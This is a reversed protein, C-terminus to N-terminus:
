KEHRRKGEMFKRSRRRKRGRKNNFFIVFYIIALAGLVIYVTYNM